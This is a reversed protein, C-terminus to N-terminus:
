VAPSAKNMLVQYLSFNPLLEFHQSLDMLLMGPSRSSLLQAPPSTCLHLAPVDPQVDVKSALLRALAVGSGLPHTPQCRAPLLRAPCCWAPCGVCPYSGTGWSSPACWQSKMRHGTQHGDTWTLATFALPKVERRATLLTKFLQM